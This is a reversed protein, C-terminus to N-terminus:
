TLKRMYRGPIPDLSLRCLLKTISYILGPNVRAEIEGIIDKHRFRIQQSLQMARRRPRVENGPQAQDFPRILPQLLIKLEGENRGRGAKALGSEDAVPKVLDVPRSGPEGEVFVVIVQGSEQSVDDGGELLDERIPALRGM